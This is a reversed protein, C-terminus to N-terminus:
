RSLVAKIVQQKDGFGREGLRKREASDWCRWAQKEWPIANYFKQFNKTTKVKGLGSFAALIAAAEAERTTLKM